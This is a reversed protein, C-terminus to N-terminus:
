NGTIWGLEPFNIFIYILAAGGLLIVAVRLWNIKRSMQLRGKVHQADRM